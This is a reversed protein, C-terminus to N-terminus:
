DARRDLLLALEFAARLSSPDAVGLGAIDYATGHDVSTRVFPLGVTTNVGQDLGLYKIPILGQDHYQAVVIDFEGQRARMFLTDGPWPGSADIGEKRALAIAPSIAEQEEYGFKGDEGAHPNLGAVAVRPSAIGLLRCAEHALRITRLELASTILGPVRSLAEHITVLIVRLEDNVLMMAYDRTGTREALIETHGPFAIGGAQMAAKNLPATVIARTEGALTDDIAQCLYEYAGQGALAHVKGLPLKAPLAQWRNVVDIGDPQLHAQSVGNCAHIKLKSQWGLREIQEQMVGADGYVVAPWPLGAEFLKVIIEPGIGAADGMTLAIPKRRPCAASM